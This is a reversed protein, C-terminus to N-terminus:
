LLIEELPTLQQPKTEKFEEETYPAIHNKLYQKGIILWEVMYVDQDEHDDWQIDLIIGIDDDVDRFTFGPSYKM